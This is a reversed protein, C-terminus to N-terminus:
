WGNRPPRARALCGPGRRQSRQAGGRESRDGVVARRRRHDRAAGGLDKARHPDRRAAPQVCPHGRGGLEVALIGAIRQLAGKSMGYSLGWGGEGAPAPPDLWAVGSSVNIIYGSGRELMGPLVRKILALPAMVNAEMHLDLAELSTDVFKDDHGPGVYRGCNVLVDVGGWAGIVTDAAAFMSARDTLDAPVALARVGEREILEATVTLSGPYSGVESRHITTSQEWEEGEDVTRATVAVDFGARALYVAVVKGMGRSAGTVLATPM